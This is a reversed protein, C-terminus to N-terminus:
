LSMRVSDIKSRIFINDQTNYMGPLLLLFMYFKVFCAQRKIIFLFWDRM